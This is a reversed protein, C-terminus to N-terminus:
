PGCNRAQGYNAWRAALAADGAADQVDGFLDGLKQRLQVLKATGEEVSPELFSGETWDDWTQLTVGHLGNAAAFDIMAALVAPDRPPAEGVRPIQRSTCLGTAADPTWGNEFDDFGPAVGAVVTKGAPVHALLKAHLQQAYAFAHDYPTAGSTADWVGLNIWPSLGDFAAWFGPSTATGAFADSPSGVGVALFDGKAARAAAFIQTWEDATPLGPETDVYFWLLPVGGVRLTGAAAALDLMDMVDQQLNAICQARSAGCDLGLFHGNHWYWTADDGVAVADVGAAAARAQFHVLSQLAIENISAPNGHLSTFATGDLQIAYADFRAADSAASRVNSVMLDIRAQSELDRGSSSYIGALPHYRSSINRQGFATCQNPFATFDACASDAQWNGYSGDPGTGQPDAGIGFWSTTIMLALRAPLAVASSRPPAKAAGPTGGRESCSLLSAVLLAIATKTHM